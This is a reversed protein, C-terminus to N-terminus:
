VLRRRAAPHLWGLVGRHESAAARREREVQAARAELLAVLDSTHRFPDAFARGGGLPLAAVITGSVEAVLAGGIPPLAGDLAALAALAPRDSRGAARIEVAETRTRVAPRVAPRAGPMRARRLDDIRAKALEREIEPHM